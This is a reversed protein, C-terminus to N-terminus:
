NFVLAFQLSIEFHPINSSPFLVRRGFQGMNNVTMYNDSSIASIQKKM